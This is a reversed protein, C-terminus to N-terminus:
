SSRRADCPFQGLQRCLTHLNNFRLTPRDIKRTEGKKYWEEANAIKFNEGPHDNKVNEPHEKDNFLCKLFIHETM